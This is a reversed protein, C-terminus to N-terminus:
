GGATTTASEDGATTTPVQVAAATLAKTFAQTCVAAKGDLAKNLAADGGGKNISKLEETDGEVKDYVCGAFDTLLKDAAKANIGSGEMASSFDKSVAQKVSNVFENKTPTDGKGCGAVLLALAGAIAVLIRSTRM